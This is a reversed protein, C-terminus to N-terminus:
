EKNMHSDFLRKNEVHSHRVWVWHLHHRLYSYVSAIWILNLHRFEGSPSSQYVFWCVQKRWRPESSVSSCDLHALGICMICGLTLDKISVDRTKVTLVSPLNWILPTATYIKVTWAPSKFGTWLQAGALQQRIHAAYVIVLMQFFFCQFFYM